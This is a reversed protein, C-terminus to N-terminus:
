QYQTPQQNYQYNPDYPPEAYEGTPPYAGQQQGPYAGQQGYQYNGQYQPGGYPQPQVVTTHHEHVTTTHHHEKKKKHKGGVLPKTHGFGKCTSKSTCVISAIMVGCILFIFVIGGIIYFALYNYTVTSQAYTTATLLSLLCTIYQKLKM